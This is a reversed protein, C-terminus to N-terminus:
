FIFDYSEFAKTLRRCVKEYVKTCGKQIDIFDEPPYVDSGITKEMPTVEIINVRIKNSYTTISLNIRMEHMDNYENPKTWDRDEKKRQYLLGIYVDCTNPSYKIDQASDLHKYLYKGVRNVQQGAQLKPKNSPVASFIRM